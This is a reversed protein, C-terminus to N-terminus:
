YNDYTTTTNNKNINIISENSNDVNYNNTTATKSKHINIINM